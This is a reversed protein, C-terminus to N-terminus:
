DTMKPDLGFPLPGDVSAIRCSPEDGRDVRSTTTFSVSEGPEVGPVTVRELRDTRLGNVEILVSYTQENNGLNRLTGEITVLGSDDVVCPALEADVPGPDNYEDIIQVVLVSLWVGIAAAVLGLGGTTLGTIAFGRKPAGANSRRLAVIGLVIAVIAAPIGLLGVFPIWGITLSTIGCVMSAVALGNGARRPPDIPLRDLFRQGGTSVDATWVQGNHFRLEYRGAPDAHWGSM